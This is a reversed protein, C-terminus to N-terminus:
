RMRGPVVIEDVADAMARLQYGLERSEQPTLILRNKDADKGSLFKTPRLTVYCGVMGEVHLLGPGDAHHVTRTPIDDGIHSM